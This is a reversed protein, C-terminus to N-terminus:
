CTKLCHPQFSVYVIAVLRSSCVFLIGPGLSEVLISWRKGYRKRNHFNTRLLAKHKTDCTSWEPHIDSLLREVALSAYGRGPGTLGLRGGRSENFTKNRSLAEYQNHLLMFSARKRIDDDAMHQDLQCLYYYLRVLSGYSTTANVPSLRMEQHWLGNKSWRPLQQVIYQRYDPRACDQVASLVFSHVGSLRYEPHIDPASYPAEETWEQYRPIPPLYSSNGFLSQTSPTDNTGFLSGSETSTLAEGTSAM